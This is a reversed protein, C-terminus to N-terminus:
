EEKQVKAKIWFALSQEITQPSVLLSPVVLSLDSLPITM